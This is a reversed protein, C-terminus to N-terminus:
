ESVERVGDAGLEVGKKMHHSMNRVSDYGEGKTLM